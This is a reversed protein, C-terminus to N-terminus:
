LPLVAAKRGAPHRVDPMRGVGSGCLRWLARPVPLAEGGAVEHRPAERVDARALRVTRSASTRSVQVIASTEMDPIPPMAVADSCRKAHEVHVSRGGYGDPRAIVRSCMSPSQFRSGTRSNASVLREGRDVTDPIVSLYSLVVDADQSGASASSHECFFSHHYPRLTM